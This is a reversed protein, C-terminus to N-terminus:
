EVDEVTDILDDNLLLFFLLLLMFVIFRHSLSCDEHLQWTDDLEENDNSDDQEQLASRPKLDL